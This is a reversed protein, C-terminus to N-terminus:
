LGHFDIFKTVGGLIMFVAVAFNVMRSCARTLLIDGDRGGEKIECGSSM